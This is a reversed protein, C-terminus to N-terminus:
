KGIWAIVADKAVVGGIGVVVFITAWRLLKKEISDLRDETTGVRHALGKNGFADGAIAKEIRDVTTRISRVENMISAEHNEKEDM